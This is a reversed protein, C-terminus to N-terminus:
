YKKTQDYISVDINEAVNEQNEEGLDSFWCEQLLSSENGYTHPHIILAKIKILIHIDFM